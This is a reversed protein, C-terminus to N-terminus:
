ATPTSAASSSAPREDSWAPLRGTSAAASANLATLVTVNMRAGATPQSNGPRTSDPSEAPSTVPVAVAAM